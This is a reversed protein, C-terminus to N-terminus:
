AVHPFARAPHTSHVCQPFAQPFGTSRGRLPSFSRSNWLKKQRFGHGSSYQCMVTAMACRRKRPLARLAAAWMQSLIDSTRVPPRRISRSSNWMYRPSRTPNPEGCAAPLPRLDEGCHNSAIAAAGARECGDSSSGLQLQAPDSGRFAGHAM